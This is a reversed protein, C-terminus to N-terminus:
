CKYVGDLNNPTKTFRERKSYHKLAYQLSMIFGNIKSYHCEELYKSLSVGPLSTM